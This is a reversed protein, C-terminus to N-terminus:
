DSAARVSSSSMAASSCTAANTPFCSQSSDTLGCHADVQLSAIAAPLRRGPPERESAYFVMSVVPIRENGAAYIIHSLSTLPRPRGIRKRFEASLKGIFGNQEGRHTTTGRNPTPQPRQGRALPPIRRRGRRGLGPPHTSQGRGRRFEREPVLVIRRCEFRRGLARRLRGRLDGRARRLARASRGTGPLRLGRTFGAASGLLAGPPSFFGPNRPRKHGPFPFPSRASAFTSFLSFSPGALGSSDPLRPLRSSPSGAVSFAFLPREAEYRTPMLSVSRPFAPM